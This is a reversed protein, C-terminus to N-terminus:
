PSAIYAFIDEFQADSLETLSYNVPHKATDGPKRLVPLWEALDYTNGLIVPADLRGSEHCGTCWTNYLLTGAARDGTTGGSPATANPNDTGPTGSSPTGGGSPRPTATPQSAQETRVAEPTLDELNVRGCGVAVVAILVAAFIARWRRQM